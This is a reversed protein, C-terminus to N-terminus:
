NLDYNMDREVEVEPPHIITGYPPEPIEPPLYSIDETIPAILPKNRSLFDALVNEKGPIHKVEFMYQSFWNAWKLLQAQPLMKQKSHLMKTFVKMDRKVALIEKFTSHYHQEAISFRGSKYQCLKRTNNIKQILSAGWIYASADTEFSEGNAAKFVRHYPKWYQQPLISPHAITTAARTDFLAPVRIPKDYKNPLISVTAVPITLADMPWYKTQEELMYLESEEESTNDSFIEDDSIVLLKEVTPGEEESLISELDSFEEALLISAQQFAKKKKIATKGKHQKKKFFRYKRPKELWPKTKFKLGTGKKTKTPYKCSKEPKCKITLDKREYYKEFKFGLNQIAELFAKRNCLKELTDLSQAYLEGLSTGQLKLGKNQITRQTEEGLPSPLSNLYIQKLNTDDIGRPGPDAMYIQGDSNGSDSSINEEYDKLTTARLFSSIPNPEEVPLIESPLWTSAGGTIEPIYEPIPVMPSKGKSVPTPVLKQHTLVPVYPQPPPVTEQHTLVPVYPKSSSSPFISYPNLFPLESSPISEEPVHIIEYLYDVKSAITQKFSPLSLTTSAIDPTTNSSSAMILEKPYEQQACNEPNVTEDARSGKL